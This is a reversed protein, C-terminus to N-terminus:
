RCTSTRGAVSVHALRGRAPQVRGRRAARRRRRARRLRARLSQRVRDALHAALAPLLVRRETLGKARATRVYDEEQAEVLSSRLVRAYLGIYLVSLTLWPLLLSKFWGVPSETFPMYGLPPVWSFLFTDHLRSQTLMNVVEGLWFVPMSIGILGIIM